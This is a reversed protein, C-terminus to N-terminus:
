VTGAEGWNCGFCHTYRTAVKGQLTVAMLGDLQTVTKFAEKFVKYRIILPVNAQNMMAQGRNTLTAFGLEVESHNQQPTNGATIKYLLNLKWDSLDSWAKLKKNEGAGDM